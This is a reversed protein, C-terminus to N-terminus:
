LPQDSAGKWKNVLILANRLRKKWLHYLLFFLIIGLIIPFYFMIVRPTPTFFINIMQFYFTLLLVISTTDVASYFLATRVKGHINVMKAAYKYNDLFLDRTRLSDVRDLFIEDALKLKKAEKIKEPNYKIVFLISVIIVSYFFVNITINNALIEFISFLTLLVPILSVSLIMLGATIHYGYLLDTEKERIKSSYNKEAMAQFINMAGMIMFITLHYM